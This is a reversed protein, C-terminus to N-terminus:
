GAAPTPQPRSKELKGRAFKRSFGLFPWLLRVELFEVGSSGLVGWGTSFPPISSIAVVLRDGFAEFGAYKTGLTPQVRAGLSNKL